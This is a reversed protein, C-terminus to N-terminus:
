GLEGRKKETPKRGNGKTLKRSQVSNKRKKESKAKKRKGKGGNTRKRGETRDETTWFGWARWRLQGRKNKQKKKKGSM